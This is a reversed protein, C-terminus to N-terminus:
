TLLSVRSFKMNRATSPVVLVATLDDISDRCYANFTNRFLMNPTPHGNFHDYVYKNTKLKFLLPPGPNDHAYFECVYGEINSVDAKVAAIAADIDEKTTYRAHIIDQNMEIPGGFSTINLLILERTDGYKVVNANEPSIYEYNFTKGSSIMEYREEASTKAYLLKEAADLHEWSLSANSKLRLKGHADVFTSVISGDLKDYMILVGNATDITTFENENLNFFKPMPWCVLTPPGDENHRYMTGRCNQAYPLLWNSADKVRIYHFIEYKQGDHKCVHIRSYLQRPFKKTLAVLATYALDPTDM